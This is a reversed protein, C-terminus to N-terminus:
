LTPPACAIAAEGVFQFLMAGTSLIVPGPLIKTAVAFRSTNPFTAISMIAPGEGGFGRAIKYDSVISLFIWCNMAINM